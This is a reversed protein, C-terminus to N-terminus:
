VLSPVIANNTAYKQLYSDVKFGCLDIKTTIRNLEAGWIKKAFDECIYVEKREISIYKSEDPSCALCFLSQLDDFSGECRKTVLGKM